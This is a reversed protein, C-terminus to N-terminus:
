VDATEPTTAVRLGLVLDMVNTNGPGTYILDGALDLFAGADARRLCDGPDLRAGIGRAVTGGDVLAGAAGGAGDSGDTGAALLYLDDRGAIDIAAALALSQCRGGRGPVEPLSVVTEGGHVQLGPAAAAVAAAIAHGTEAADGELLTRAIVTRYGLALGRAAAAACADRVTAVIRTEVAAGTTVPADVNAILERLWGPLYREIDPSLAEDRAPVLLGSGITAPDDGPVDSILLQLVRQGRLRGALRGGKIRSLRARVRNVAGIPLGSGLLWRYAGQLTELQIGARPVEVLASTGGSILFLLPTAPPTADVFDILAEGAALSSTDPVPHAAEIRLAPLDAPGTDHGQRTVILAAAIRDGLADFAGQAMAGAAKGIAVLRVPCEFAEGALALRVRSRGSVAALAHRYIDLLDRRRADRTPEPTPRRVASPPGVPM